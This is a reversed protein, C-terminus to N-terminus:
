KTLYQQRPDRKKAAPEPAMARSASSPFDPPDADVYGESEMVAAAADSVLKTDGRSAGFERKARNFRVLKRVRYKAGTFRDPCYCASEAAYVLFRTGGVITQPYATPNGSIAYGPEPNPAGAPASRIYVAATSLTVYCALALTASNELASITVPSTSGVSSATGYVVSLTPNANTM